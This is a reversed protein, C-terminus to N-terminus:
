ESVVASIPNVSAAAATRDTIASRLMRMAEALTIGYITLTKSKGSRREYATVHVRRINKDRVKM